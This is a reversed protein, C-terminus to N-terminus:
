IKHVLIYSQKWGLWVGQYWRFLLKSLKVEGPYLLDSGHSARTTQRALGLGRMGLTYIPPWVWSFGSWRM